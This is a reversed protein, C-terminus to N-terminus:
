QKSVIGSGIEHYFSGGESNKFSVDPVFQFKSGDDNPDYSTFIYAVDDNGKKWTGSYTASSNASVFGGVFDGSGVEITFTEPNYVTLTYKKDKTCAALALAIISLTIIKKM